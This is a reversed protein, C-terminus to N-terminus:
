TVYAMDAGPLLPMHRRLDAHILLVGVVLVRVAEAVGDAHRSSHQGMGDPHHSTENREELLIPILPYQLREVRVWEQPLLVM